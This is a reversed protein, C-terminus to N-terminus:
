QPQSQDILRPPADAEVSGWLLRGRAALMAAQALRPPAPALPDRSEVHTRNVAGSQATLWVSMLGFVSLHRCAALNADWATQGPEQRPFFRRVIDAQRRSKKIHLDGSAHEGLQWLLRRIPVVLLMLWM